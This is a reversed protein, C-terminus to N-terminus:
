VRRPSRQERHIMWQQAIAGVVFIVLWALVTSQVVPSEPGHGIPNAPPLRSLTENIAPVNLLFYSSTLGFASLYPRLRGLFALHPALTGGLAAVLALIAIVHGPNFGGTSSLGFSTLSTLVLTVLYVKGAGTSVDIRRYRLFLYLGAAVAVLSILTHVIGLTSLPNPM